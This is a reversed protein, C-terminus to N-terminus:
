YPRVQKIYLEGNADFKFEVDLGFDYYSAMTLNSYYFHNKIALLAQYLKGVQFDNLVPEGKNQNSMTIYDTLITTDESGDIDGKYFVVFQDCVIGEDPSVVSIEGKQVNVTFGPFYSRYLNATVAVGNAIEDPFSRHVLIGMYVTKQDIGFAVREKYAQYSFISAWVSKIAAEVSKISDGPIGTKSDYLGAGNFGKIDEANTSSRFRYRNGASGKKIKNEVENLLVPDIPAEKIAKRIKKLHESLLENDSQFEPNINLQNILSDIKQQHVHKFYYYFPIVFGGEPVDFTNSSLSLRNLEGFNAAKSGAFISSHKSINSIDTIRKYTIDSKASSTSQHFAKAVYKRVEEDTCATISFSDTSVFLKVPQNLYSNILKNDWGDTLVMCPTGRNHVLINIHSLPTQNKTTILGACLPLQDPNEDILIIDSKEVSDMQHQLDDFRKLYGYAVGENVGQYTQGAFLADPYILPLDQITNKLSILHSSNMLLKMENGFYTHTKVEEYLLRIDATNSLDLGSFELVYLGSKSFYDITGILFQRTDSSVYNVTNFVGLDYNYHLVESCFAFHFVYKKSQIFYIKKMRIDYIIKIAEDDAYKDDLPAGKLADFEARTNIAELYNINAPPKPDQVPPRNSSCAIFLIFVPLFIRLSRTSFASNPNVRPVTNMNYFYERQQYLKSQRSLKVSM